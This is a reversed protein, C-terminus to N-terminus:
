QCQAERKLYGSTTRQFGYRGYWAVLEDYDLPGSPLVELQLTAGEADADALIQKLLATGYGNGRFKTPVNIRTITWNPTLEGPRILDAIARHERDIYCTQM